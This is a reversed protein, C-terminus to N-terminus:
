TARKAAAASCYPFIPPRPGRMLYTNSINATETLRAWQVPFEIMERLMFAAGNSCRFQRGVDGSQGTFGLGQDFGRQRKLPKPVFLGHM